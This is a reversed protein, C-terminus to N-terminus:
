EETAKAQKREEERRLLYLGLHVLGRHFAPTYEQNAQEGQALRYADAACLSAQISTVNGFKLEGKALKILQDYKDIILRRFDIDMQSGSPVQDAVHHVAAAYEPEFAKIASRQDPSLSSQEVSSM